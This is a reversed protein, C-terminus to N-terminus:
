RAYIHRIRKRRESEYGRHAGRRSGGHVSDGITAIATARTAAGVGAAVVSVMVMM